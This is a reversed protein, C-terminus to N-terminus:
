RREALRGQCFSRRAALRRRRPPPPRGGGGSNRRRRRGGGGGGGSRTRRPEVGYSPAPLLRTEDTTTEGGGVEEILGSGGGGQKRQTAEQEEKERQQRKAEESGPPPPPPVGKKRMIQPMPAIGKYNGKIKPYGMELSLEDKYKQQIQHVTLQMVFSRFEEEKLAGEVADPHFVVDYVTCVEGSKDLDERPPGLSMPIRMQLEDSGEGGAGGEVPAPKDVHDSSCVNIFVKAGQRTASRTKAVFGPTPTVQEGQQQAAGSGKGAAGGGGGKAAQKEQLDKVLLEYEAPNNAQLDELYKLLEQEQPSLNAAEDANM